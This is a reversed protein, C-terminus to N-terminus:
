GFLVGPGSSRDGGSPPRRGFGHGMGFGENDVFDEIRDALDEKLEEAENADIDGNNDVAEDIRENAAAVMADIVDQVDVGEQEAIDAISTDGEALADRLEEESLGLAEAAAEFSAGGHLALGRHGGFSCRGDSEKDEPTGNDGTTGNSDDTTTTTTDGGDQASAVSPVGIVAGVAGGAGLAAGLAVAAFLKRDAM